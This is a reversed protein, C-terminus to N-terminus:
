QLDKLCVASITIQPSRSLFGCLLLNYSVFATSDRISLLTFVIGSTAAVTLAYRFAESLFEM